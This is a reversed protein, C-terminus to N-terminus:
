PFAPFGVQADKSFSTHAMWRDFVRDPDVPITDAVSGFPGGGREAIWAGFRAVLADANTELLYESAPGGYKRLFTLPPKLFDSDSDLNFFERWRLYISQFNYPM